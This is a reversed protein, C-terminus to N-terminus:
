LKNEQLTMVVLGVNSRKKGKTFLNLTDRQTEKIQLINIASRVNICKKPSNIYLEYVLFDRLFCIDNSREYILGPPEQNM